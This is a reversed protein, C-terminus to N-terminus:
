ALSGLGVDCTSTTHSLGNAGPAFANATGFFNASATFALPPGTM